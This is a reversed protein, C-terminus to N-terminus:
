WPNEQIQNNSAQFFNWFDDGLHRNDVIIVHYLTFIVKFLDLLVGIKGFIGVLHWKLWRFKSFM